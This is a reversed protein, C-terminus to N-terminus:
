NGVNVSVLSLESGDERAKVAVIHHRRETGVGLQTEGSHGLRHRCTMQGNRFDVHGDCATVDGFKKMENKYFEIIKGPADVSRYKAAIVHVNVFPVKVDVDAAEKDDNDARSPTAGPYVALGTDPSDVGGKVSVNAGPTRVDVNAKHHQEDRDVDISCAALGLCGLVLVAAVAEHLLTKM